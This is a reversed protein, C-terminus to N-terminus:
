EHVVHPLPVQEPGPVIVLEVATGNGSSNVMLKGNISLARSHMTTLGSAFTTTQLNFGKGNDVVALRFGGADDHEIFISVLSAEAHQMSNLLAEQCVRYVDLGVEYTLAEESFSSHYNCPIGTLASFEEALMALAADLGLDALDGPSIAYAVRRINNVLLATTKGLSQLHSRVQPPLEHTESSLWDLETKVATAM